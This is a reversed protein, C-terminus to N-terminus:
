KKRRQGLPTEIAEEVTWGNRNVRDYLTAWPMDLEKAWERISKTQGNYTLESLRLNSKKIKAKVNQKSEESLEESQTKHAEAAAEAEEKKKEEEFAIIREILKAKAETLKNKKRDCVVRVGLGDALEILAPGKMAKLEEIRATM